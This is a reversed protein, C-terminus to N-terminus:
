CILVGEILKADGNSEQAAAINPSPESFECSITLVECEIMDDESKQLHDQLLNPVIPPIVLSMDLQHV